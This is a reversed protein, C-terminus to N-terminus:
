VVSYFYQVGANFINYTHFYYPLLTSLTKLVSCFAAFKIHSVPADLHVVFLLFHDLYNYLIIKDILLTTFFSKFMLLKETHETLSM